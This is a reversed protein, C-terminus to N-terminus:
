TLNEVDVVLNDMIYKRRDPTNDGMYFSVTENVRSDRNMDVPTLRM